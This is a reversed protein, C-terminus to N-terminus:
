NAPAILRVLPNHSTALRPVLNCHFPPLPRLCFPRIQTLLKILCLSFVVLLRFLFLRPFRHAPILTIWRRRYELCVSKTRERIAILITACARHAGSEVVALRQNRPPQGGVIESAREYFGGPSRVYM